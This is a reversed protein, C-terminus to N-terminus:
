EALWIIFQHYGPKGEIEVTRSKLKDPPVGMKEALAHRVDHADQQTNKRSRELPESQAAGGGQIIKALAALDKDSLKAKRAATTPKDVQKFTM